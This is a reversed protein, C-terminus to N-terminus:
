SEENVKIVKVKNARPVKPLTITLVGNKLSAQAKDVKIETPLIISRSFGGWFCEKFLYEANEATFDKERKGRITVMDNNISIDLDEPRVGAITSKVVIEKETQYVDVALQGSFDETLWGASAFNDRDEDSVPLQQPDSVNPIVKKVTTGVNNVPQPNPM